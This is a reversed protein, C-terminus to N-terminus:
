TATVLFFGVYAAIMLIAFITSYAIWVKFTKRRPELDRRKNVARIYVGVIFIAVFCIYLSIVATTQATYKEAAEPTPAGNFLASFFNGVPAFLSM